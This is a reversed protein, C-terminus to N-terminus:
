SPHKGPVGLSTAAKLAKRTQLAWGVFVPPSLLAVPITSAVPKPTGRLSHVFYTAGVTVMTPVIVAMATVLWPTGDREALRTALRMIVGGMLFTYAAQKAAATTAPLVGHDSNIWWVISAMLIAGFVASRLDFAEGLGRLWREHTTSM